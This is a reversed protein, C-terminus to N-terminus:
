KYQTCNRKHLHYLDLINCTNDMHILITWLMTLLCIMIRCNWVQIMMPQRLLPLFVDLHCITYHRIQHFLSHFIHLCIQGLVSYLFHLISETTSWLSGWKHTSCCGNIPAVVSPSSWLLYFIGNNWRAGAVPKIEIIDPWIILSPM